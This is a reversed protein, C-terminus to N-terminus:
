IHITESQDAVPPPLSKINYFWIGVIIMSGYTAFLMRSLQDVDLLPHFGDIILFPIYTLLVGAISLIVKLQLTNGVKSLAFRVVFYFIMLSPFSLVAGFLFIVFLLTFDSGQKPGVTLTAWILLLIPSATVSTLWIKIIYDSIRYSM